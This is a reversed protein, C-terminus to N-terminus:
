SCINERAWDAFTELLCDDQGDAHYDSTTFIKKSGRKSKRQVRGTWKRQEAIAKKPVFKASTRVNSALYSGVVSPFALVKTWRGCDKSCAHVITPPLIFKKAPWVNAKITLSQVDFMSKRRDSSTSQIVFTWTPREVFKARYIYVKAPRLNDPLINHQNTIMYLVYLILNYKCLIPNIHAVFIYYLISHSL